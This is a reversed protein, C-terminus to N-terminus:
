FETLYSWLQRLENTFTQYSVALFSTYKTSYRQIYQVSKRLRKVMHFCKQLLHHVQVKNESKDLFKAMAVLIIDLSILFYHLCVSVVYM